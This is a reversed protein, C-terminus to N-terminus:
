HLIKGESNSHDGAQYCVKGLPLDFDSQDCPYLWIEADNVNLVDFAALLLESFILSLEPLERWYTGLCSEEGTATIARGDDDLVDPRESIANLLGVLRQSIGINSGLVTVAECLISWLTDVTTVKLGRKLVTEYASAIISAATDADVKGQFLDQFTDIACQHEVDQHDQDQRAPSAWSGVSM